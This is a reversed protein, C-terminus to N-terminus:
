LIPTCPKDINIREFRGKLPNKMSLRYCAGEGCTCQLTLPIRDPNSVKTITVAESFFFSFHDDRTSECSHIKFQIFTYTRNSLQAVYNGSYASFIYLFISRISYIRNKLNIM